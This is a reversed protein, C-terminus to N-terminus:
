APPPSLLSRSDSRRLRKERGGSGSSDPRRTKKGTNLDVEDGSLRPADSRRIRQNTGGSGSPSPGGSRQRRTETSSPARGSSEGSSQSESGPGPEVVDIQEWVGSALAQEATPRDAPDWALMSRLLVDLHDPMRSQLSALHELVRTHNDRNYMPGTYVWTKFTALMSLALSFVDISNTYEEQTGVEPATFTLPGLGRQIGKTGQKSKGFDCIAASPPQLSFVLLNNPSIDRHMIGASHLNRLGELVQRFLALRTAVPMEHWATTEFSFPAYPMLLHVAELASQFCPPSQGHECWSSILSVLGVTNPLVKSAIDIENSVVHVDRQRCHITKCAVIDGSRRDVGVRVVGFAGQSVTHHIILDRKREQTFRPLPDLRDRVPSRGWNPYWRQMYKDRNTLYAPENDVSFTLVFDLPGIRLHNTTMHLVHEDGYQLEVDTNSEAHLYIISHITNINRLILLGSQPHIFIECVHPARLQRSRSSCIPLNVNAATRPGLKGVVWAGNYGHGRNDFSLDLQYKSQAARHASRPPAAPSAQVATVAPNIRSEPSQQLQKDVLSALCKQAVANEPTLTAFRLSSM